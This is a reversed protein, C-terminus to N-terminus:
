PELDIAGNPAPTLITRGYDSCGATIRRKASIVGCETEICKSGFLDPGGDEGRGLDDFEVVAEGASPVEDRRNVGWGKGVKRAVPGGENGGLMAGVELEPVDFVFGAGGAGGIRDEGGDLAAHVGGILAAVVEGLLEVAGEEGMESGASEGVGASREVGFRGAEHDVAEGDEREFDEMGAFFDVAGGDRWGRRLAVGLAVALAKGDEFLLASVESGAKVGQPLAGKGARASELEVALELHVVVGGKVGRDVAVLGGSKEAQNGRKGESLTRV